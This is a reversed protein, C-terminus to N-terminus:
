ADLIKLCGRWRTKTDMKLLKGGLVSSARCISSLVRAIAPFLSSLKTGLNM